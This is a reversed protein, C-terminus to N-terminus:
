PNTNNSRKFCFSLPTMEGAVQLDSKWTTKETKWAWVNAEPSNQYKVFLLTRNAQKVGFFKGEVAILFIEESGFSLAVAFRAVMVVNWMAPFVCLIPIEYNDQLYLMTISIGSLLNNQAVLTQPAQEYNITNLLFRPFEHLGLNM